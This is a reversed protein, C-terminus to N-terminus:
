EKSMTYVGLVNNYHPLIAAIMVRSSSFLFFFFVFSSPSSLFLFQSRSSSSYLLIIFVSFSFFLLFHLFLFSPPMKLQGQQCHSICRHVKVTTVLSSPLIIKLQMQYATTCTDKQSDPAIKYIGINLYICLEVDRTIISERWFLMGIGLHSTPTSFGM